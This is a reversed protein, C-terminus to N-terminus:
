SDHVNVPSDPLTIIQPSQDLFCSKFLGSMVDAAQCNSYLLGRISHEGKDHTSHEDECHRVQEEEETCTFKCLKCRYIPHSSLHKVLSNKRAPVEKSCMRCELTPINTATMQDVLKDVMQTYGSRCKSGRKTFCSTLIGTLKDMDRTDDIHLRADEAAIAGTSPSEVVVGGEERLTSVGNKARCLILHDFVAHQEKFGAQCLRCAFLPETSHHYVHSRIGTETNPVEDGCTRCVLKKEKCAHLLKL